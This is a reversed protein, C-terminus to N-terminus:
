KRIKIFNNCPSTEEEAIWWTGTKVIDDFSIFLRCIDGPSAFATWHNQTIVLGIIKGTRNISSVKYSEIREKDTVRFSKESLGNLPYKYLIIDVALFQCYKYTLRSYVM